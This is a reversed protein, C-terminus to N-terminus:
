LVTVPCVSGLNAVKEFIMCEHKVCESSDIRLMIPERDIGCVNRMASSAANDSVSGEQQRRRWCAIQLSCVFGAFLVIAGLAISQRISVFLPSLVNLESIFLILM